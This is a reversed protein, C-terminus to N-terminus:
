RTGELKKLERSLTRDIWGKAQAADGDHKALAKQWLDMILRPPKDTNKPKSVRQQRVEELPDVPDDIDTLPDAANALKELVFTALDRLQDFNIDAIFTIERDLNRNWVRIGGFRGADTEIPRVNFHAISNRLVRPLEEIKSPDIVVDDFGDDISIPGKGSNPYVVTMVDALKKVKDYDNLLRGLANPTREHPFVLFALTSVLLQTDAYPPDDRDGARADWVPARDYIDNLNALVRQALVRLLPGNPYSM